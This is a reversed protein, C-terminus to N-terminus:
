QLQPRPSPKRGAIHFTSAATQSPHHQPNLNHSRIALLGTEKRTKQGREWQDNCFLPLKKRSSRAAEQSPESGWIIKKKAACHVQNSKKCPKWNCTICTGTSTRCHKCKLKMSLQSIQANIRSATTDDSWSEQAIRNVCIVHAWNENRYDVGKM